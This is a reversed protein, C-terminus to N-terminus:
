CAEKVEDKEKRCVLFDLYQGALALGHSSSRMGEAGVPAAYKDCHLVANQWRLRKKATKDEYRKASPQLLSTM